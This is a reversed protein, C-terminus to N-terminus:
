YPWSLLRTPAASHLGSLGCLTIGEFPPIIPSFEPVNLIDRTGRGGRDSHDPPVPTRAVRTLPILIAARRGSRNINDAGSQACCAIRGNTPQLDSPWAPGMSGGVSVFLAMRIGAM